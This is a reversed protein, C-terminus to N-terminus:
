GDGISHHYLVAFTAADDGHDLVVARALPARDAPIRQRLQTEFAEQWGALPVSVRTIPVPAPDAVFAFWPKGGRVEIRARLLPHRAQLGALARTLAADDLRAGGRTLQALVTFTLPSAQDLKWFAKENAGLPRDEHM